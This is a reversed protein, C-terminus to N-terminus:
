FANAKGRSEKVVYDNILPSCVGVTAFVAFLARIMYLGPWVNPASYPLLFLVIASGILSVILTKKRGFIDYIYGIIIVLGIQFFTSYFTLNNTVAGMKEKPVNFYLPDRLIFV